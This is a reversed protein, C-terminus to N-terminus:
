KLTTTMEVSSTKINPSTVTIVITGPKTTSFMTANAMGNVTETSYTQTNNTFIGPGSITLTVPIKVSAPLNYIDKIEVRITSGSTGDAKINEPNAEVSITKPFLGNAYEEIWRYGSPAEANPYLGTKSDSYKLEFENPIGDDDDDDPYIGTSYVPYDNENISEILNGTNNNVDNIIRDDIIDLTPVRAGVKALVIQYVDKAPHEIIGSPKVVLTDSKYKETGTSVGFFYVLDWDNKIDPKDFNYNDNIYFKSDNHIYYQGNNWGPFNYIVICGGNYKESNRKFYNKIVNWYLPGFDKRTPSSTFDIAKDSFNYMLNNVIEGTSNGNCEPLRMKLHAFLNHHISINKSNDGALLGFGHEGYSMLGESIINWQWTVSNVPFWTVAIEDSGWSLSCHDIIIRYPPEDHNEISICDQNRTINREKGNRWRVGRVIVDHTSIRLAGNSICIGSGPATQGAITLYPNNVYIDKKLIINGGTKFIVIRPRKDLLAERLSGAGKDKTNTVKLVVPLSSGSFAGRTKSGFGEAGPFSPLVDAYCTVSLIFLFLLILTKSLNKNILM